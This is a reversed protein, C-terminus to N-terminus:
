RVLGGHSSRQPNLLSYFLKECFNAPPTKGRCLVTSSWLIAELSLWTNGRVLEKMTIGIMWFIEPRREFWIRRTMTSMRRRHTAEHDSTIMSLRNSRRIMKRRIQTEANFNKLRHPAFVESKDNFIKWCVGFQSFGFWKDANVLAIRSSFLSFMQIVPVDFGAFVSVMQIVPVKFGPDLVSIWWFLTKRRATKNM